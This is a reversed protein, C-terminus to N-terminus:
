RVAQIDWGNGTRDEDQEQDPWLYSAAQAAQAATDFKMPSVVGDKRVLEYRVPRSDGHTAPTDIKSDTREM